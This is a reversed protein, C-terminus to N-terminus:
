TGGRERIMTSAALTALAREYAPLEGEAVGAAVCAAGATPHDALSRLVALLTHNKIFSLRRTGFHYLLAGFSEPRISVRSDLEWGRDLDFRETAPPHAQQARPM